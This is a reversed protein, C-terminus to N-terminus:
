EKMRRFSEKLEEPTLKFDKMKLEPYIGNKLNESVIRCMEQDRKKKAELEEPTWEKFMPKKPVNIETNNVNPKLDNLTFQRVTKMDDLEDIDNEAAFAGYAKKIASLLDETIQIGKQHLQSVIDAFKYLGINTNAAIMKTGAVLMKAQKEETNDFISLNDSNLAKMRRFSEKMQEDTLEVKPFEPYIGNKLNESVIRCMEKDRKDKAELEEPTPQKFIPSEPYIGNKLDESMQKAAKDMMEHHKKIQEPTPQKFTPKEKSEQNKNM